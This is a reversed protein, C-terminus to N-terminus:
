LVVERMRSRAVSPSHESVLTNPFAPQKGLLRLTEAIREPRGWDSWVVDKVEIVGIREPVRQLLDSSFNRRPMEQYIRDLTQGEINSGITHELEEFREMVEPFCQWGLEWMTDVKVALVLTNWLAGSAIATLGTELDPKELFARVQRVEVGGSWGIVGNAQIWGYELELGSSRVGLLILRDRLVETARIARRVIDLFRDEPYVFHDSPFLVVTAQPNLARVYTLPLFVGAATDCNRPQLLIQGAPPPDFHSWAKERHHRSIVTVKQNRPSIRDARDWTHKLMSRTGVFACYQKPLAHGLWQQIFPRTREGEGGALIISWIHRTHTMSSMFHRM